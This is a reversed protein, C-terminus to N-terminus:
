SFSGVGVKEIIRRVDKKRQVINFKQCALTRMAAQASYKDRDPLHVYDIIRQQLEMNTVYLHDLPLVEEAGDWFHSLCYCGSAMAELLSVPMGEWYSNSIFIDIQQLWHPTDEVYSHLTVNETLGLKQIASKVSEFYDDFYGGAFKGGAVHLHPNYGQKKLELVVLVVEYVRKVPHLNCLMGLNFRFEKQAPPTFRNLDVGNYVVETKAAHAPYSKIFKSRIAESVFVIKDVPEWNIKPAWYTIEYSHLRTVIRCTKPMYSAPWLLESAWEFFCVDNHQLLSRIRRHFAWRNLRGYLLPIQYSKDVFVETKHWEGLEENIEKFFRWDGKEGVLVGVRM